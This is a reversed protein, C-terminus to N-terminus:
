GHAAATRRSLLSDLDHGGRLLQFFDEANVAPSLAYGQVEDCHKAKLFALQEVTEVGEVIVRM